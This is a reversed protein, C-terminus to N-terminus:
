PNLPALHATSHIARNELLARRNRLLSTLLPKGRWNPDGHALAEQLQELEAGLQRDGCLGAFESLSAQQSRPSFATSFWPLWEHIASYTEAAQNAKCAVQLRAFASKETQRSRGSTQAPKPGFRLWLFIATILILIGASMSRLYKDTQEPGANKISANGAGPTPLVDLELGPIVQQKLELSAPDWWQFRIGPINYIGPKEIIWIITDIREGTLDGRNTRDSVEPAQPYSALGPAEFVPLPPLLMGSIDSARRTVTLTFADGSYAIDSEPQWDYDLNFSTTSIVLDGETVGPPSKVTLQLPETHFEFAKETSGYGSSTNFRVAISPIEVQGPKQPYLALPYRLVQLSEGGSNETLKITTTDTQMLFADRVDPLNFHVNSFSFGTTKLDLNLTLQQGSWTDRSQNISVAVGAKVQNDAAFVPLPLLLSTLFIVKIM